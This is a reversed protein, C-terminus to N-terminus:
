TKIRTKSRVALDQTLWNLKDIEQIMERYVNPNRRPDRITIILTAAQEPM